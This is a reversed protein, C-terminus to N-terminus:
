KTTFLLDFSKVSAGFLIILGKAKACITEKAHFARDEGGVLGIWKKLDQEM